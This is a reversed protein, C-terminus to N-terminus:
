IPTPPIFKHIIIRICIPVYLFLYIHTYLHTQRCVYMEQNQGSSIAQFFIIGLLLLFVQRGSGPKQIINQLSWPERSFHSTGASPRSFYLVLRSCRTTLPLLSTSLFTVCFGAQLLEWHGFSPCHSCCFSLLLLLLLNYDM